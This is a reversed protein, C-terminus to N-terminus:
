FLYLCFRSSIFLHIYVQIVLHERLLDMIIWGNTRGEAPFYDLLVYVIKSAYKAHKGSALEDRLRLSKPDGYATYNSELILFVDVIDGLEHLRIELMEFEVNM